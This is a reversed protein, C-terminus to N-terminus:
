ISIHPSCVTSMCSHVTYLDPSCFYVALYICCILAICIYMGTAVDLFHIYYSPLYMLPVCICVALYVSVCATLYIFWPVCIKLALFIYM